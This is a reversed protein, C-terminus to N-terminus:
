NHNLQSHEALIEFVFRSAICMFQGLRRLVVADGKRDSARSQKSRLKM